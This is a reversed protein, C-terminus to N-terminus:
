VAKEPPDLQLGAHAKERLNRFVDPHDALSLGYAPVMHALHARWEDSQMEEPFCKELTELVISVATSAGPSAGLVAALSGDAAAVVETGFELRGTRKEDKKIIQVRQGAIALTWDGNEADPFFERLSACRNEHNKRCENILYKTLPMNDRGAALMPLLNDSRVSKFLDLMSGKKLFRPSFGAFPGFLLSKQGNIMRSDLHPVSMPPAGVAAKGYVKATHQEAIEPNNCVLFQGSVPFGGYGRGEPIGSEQLLHLTGGGAGIFVRKTRIEKKGEERHNLTLRWSGDREQELNQVQTQMRMSVGDQSELHAILMRTLEGFNVDTGWQMRTAAVAAEPHRNRILLPAWESIVSPDHSYEMEEFLPCAKMAEHRRRLYDRDALGRVFSMHPVPRIFAAPDHIIGQGTLYSWFHKTTEFQENVAVAKAIDISGDAKEATYNLECLGAHGTGANNWANSSEMAVQPLAEVVQITMEPKLQKLMIGLTASMIGGGILVVDSENGVDRLLQDNQMPKLARLRKSLNPPKLSWIHSHLCGPYWIPDWKMSM